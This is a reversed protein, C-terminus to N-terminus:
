RRGVYTAKVPQELPVTIERDLHKLVVQDTEVRVVVVTNGTNAVFQGASRLATKGGPEGLVALSRGPEIITGLLRVQPPPPAHAIVPAPPPPDFLARQLPKQSVRELGALDPLPTSATKGAARVRHSVAVDDPAVEGAYPLRWGIWLTSITAVVLVIVLAVLSFRLRRVTIRM